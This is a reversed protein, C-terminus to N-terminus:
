QPLWSGLVAKWEKVQRDAAIGETTYPDEALLQDLQVRDRVQFIIFGGSDDAWPGAVVVIGEAVLVRLYDRHAPRVQRMKDRDEVYTTDVTFWTM